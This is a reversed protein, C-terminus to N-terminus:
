KIEHITCNSKRYDKIRSILSGKVGALNVDEITVWIPTPKDPLPRRIRGIVQIAESRPTVDIGCDLRPIDVGEKMMGYTAFILDSNEKVGSLYEQSVKVSKGEVEKSATFLGMSDPDLGAQECLEMLKQLHAIRDGIVLVKRGKNRMRVILNVIQQNRGSHNALFNLLTARPIKRSIDSDNRDRISALHSKYVYVKTKLAKSKAVVSPKGFTNFILDTCGDKRTPTATLAIRHRARFKGLSQSFFKAGVRHAEDWVVIGFHEYFERPYDRKSVSHIIAICIKGSSYNCSNQQIIPYDKKDGGLKELCETQWQIALAESPVIVCATKKLKAITWLMCVTNHSVTGDPMLLRRDPGEITVGHYDGVELEIVEFSTVLPDKKQRRQCNELRKFPLDPGGSMHLRWYDRPGAWSKLTVKKRRMSVSFGLSRALMCIQTTLTKSKQAIEFGSPYVKSGDGDLIGALISKRTKEDARLYSKPIHKNDLLNMARLEEQFGGTISVCPGKGLTASRDRLEWGMSEADDRCYKLARPKHIVADRSSGDALWFGLLWPPISTEDKSDAQLQFPVQFWKLCHHISKNQILYDKLTIEVIDGAHIKRGDTLTLVKKGINTCKLVLIHEANVVIKEAHRKPRLEYLTSRGRNVSTILRPISDPGLLSQGTKLDEVPLTTGDSLMMLTGRGFCKGTGTDAKCLTTIREKTSKLMDSMFANQGQTAKPHYPDPLYEFSTFHGESLDYNWEVNPFNSFAWDIPVGLYGTLKTSYNHIPDPEENGFVKPIVTLSRKINIVEAGLSSLPLYAWNSILGNMNLCIPGRISLM